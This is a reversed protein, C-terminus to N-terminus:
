HPRHNKSCVYFSIVDARLFVIFVLLLRLDYLNQIIHGTKNKLINEERNSM